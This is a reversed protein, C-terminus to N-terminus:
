AVECDGTRNQPGGRNRRPRRGNRGHRLHVGPSRRLDSLNQLRGSLNLLPDSSSLRHSWSCRHRCPSQLPDSSSPHQDTPNQRYGRPNQHRDALPQRDQRTQHRDSGDHHSQRRANPRHLRATRRHAM